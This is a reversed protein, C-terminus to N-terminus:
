LDETSSEDVLNMEKNAATKSSPEPPGVIQKCADLVVEDAFAAEEAPITANGGKGLAALLDLEDQGIQKANIDQDANLKPAGAEGDDNKTNIAHAESGADDAKDPEADETEVEDDDDSWTSPVPVDSYLPSDKPVKAAELAAIWGALYEGDQIKAIQGSYDETADAIGEARGEGRSKDARANASKLDTKCKGLEVVM